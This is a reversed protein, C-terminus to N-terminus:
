VKIKGMVANAILTNSLTRLTQIQSTLKRRGAKFAEVLHQVYTAIAQQEDLPPMVLHYNAITGINVHPVTSGLVDLFAQHLVHRCNLQWMLFRSSIGSKPRFLMMRQSICLTVGEPVPAAIGWDGERSYLVDGDSPLLRETWRAFERKGVRKAQEVHTEGPSVDSTRIAPYEGDPDYTPTAHPCDVIHSCEHKLRSIRWHAPIKGIWDIASRKRPAKSNLGGTVAQNILITQQEDLLEIQRRKKGILVDVEATKQDLFTVIRDQEAKPPIPVVINKFGLWYLRNRDSVIGYSHRNTEVQFTEGRFLYSYYRTNISKIPRAVVYAPSVLGDVPVDGVAGQWMRMTNYAIDGAAARKYANRDEILRKKRDGQFEEVQVGQKITINLIPLHSHGTEVRENFVSFIRNAEWHKPVEGLWEVGSEKYGDHRPFATM